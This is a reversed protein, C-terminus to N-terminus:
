YPIRSTLLLESQIKQSDGRETWSVTTRIVLSHPDLAYPATCDGTTYPAPDNTIRCVPLLVISRDFKGEIMTESGPSLEWTHSIDNLVPHYTVATYYNDWDSMVVNYSVEMGEELLQGAQSDFGTRKIRTLMFNLTPFVAVVIIGLIVLSILTEIILFGRKM